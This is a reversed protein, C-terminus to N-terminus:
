AKKNDFWKVLLLMDAIKVVDTTLQHVQNYEVIPLIQVIEQVLTLYQPLEAGM